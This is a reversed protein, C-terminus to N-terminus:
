AETPFNRNTKCLAEEPVEVKLISLNLSTSIIEELPAKFVEEAVHTAEEVELAKEEELEQFALSIILAARIESINLDIKM